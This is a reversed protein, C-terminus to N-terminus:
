KGKCLWGAAQGQLQEEVNKHLTNKKKKLGENEEEWSAKGGDKEVNHGRTKM